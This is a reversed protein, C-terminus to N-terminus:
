RCVFQTKTKVHHRIGGAVSLDIGLLGDHQKTTEGVLAAIPGDRFRQPLHFLKTRVRQLQNKVDTNSM